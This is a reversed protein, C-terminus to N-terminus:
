PAPVTIVIRGAQGAEVRAHAEATRDLPLVDTVNIAFGADLRANIARAASALEATTARSIVFGTVSVDRTYLPWLPAPPQPERGATILIRGGPRVMAVAANLQGHRSTDWHM